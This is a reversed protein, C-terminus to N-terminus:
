VASCIGDYYAWFNVMPKKAMELLVEMPEQEDPPFASQILREVPEVTNFEHCIKKYTLKM